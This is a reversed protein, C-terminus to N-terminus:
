YTYVYVLGGGGVGGAGGIGPNMGAGGGGGGGGGQGGAGGAAGATSATVTTGGGGGTTIGDIRVTYDETEGNAFTECPDAYGDRKMSVRMRTTGTTTGAPIVLTGSFPASLTGDAPKAQQGQFVVEGSEFQGNRNLDIWVRWYESQTFWSFGATLTLVHSSGPALVATQATFDSYQSKGSTSKLNAVAVGEIWNQALSLSAQSPTAWHM